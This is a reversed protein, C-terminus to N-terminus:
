YLRLRNQKFDEIIKRAISGHDPLLPLNERSYWGANELETGDPFLEGSDYEAIFGLMLSNPFPWPQSSYYRINRVRLSTEELVERFVAQELTEGSEVFGAILSYVGPTFNRNHALLLKDEHLVATIIAPAIQPYYREGCEPCIRATDTTSDEMETGCAGCFRRREHWFMMEKARCIACVSAEDLEHIVSRLSKTNWGDDTAPFRIGICPVGNLTGVHLGTIKQKVPFDSLRPLSEGSLLIDRNRFSFLYSEDPLSDGNLFQVTQSPIFQNM